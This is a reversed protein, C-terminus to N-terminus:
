GPPNAGHNAREIQQATKRLEPRHRRQWIVVGVAALLGLVALVPATRQSAWATQQQWMVLIWGVFAAVTWLGALKWSLASQQSRRLVPQLKERLINESM